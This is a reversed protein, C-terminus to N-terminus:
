ADFGLAEAMLDVLHVVRMKHTMGEREVGLKMQLLCGPNTTVITTAETQKTRAMKIDLIHAAEDFHIVNYIGASGCCQEPHAMERYEVGPISQILALPEETVKQVNTLHCSRQYTVVEEVPKRWNWDHGALLQSIDRVKSAFDAARERWEPDDALLHGYESLMAGCGGANQVIYDAGTEEFAAINQKALQKSLNREGAHSHLAGCCTQERQLVVDYGAESLLIETRRNTRYFMEDMVCGTFFAATGKKQGASAVRNRQRDRRKKPSEVPPAIAEFSQINDPLIKLIGWKHALQRLGSKQYAWLADGALRLMARKPFVTKFLLTRLANVFPSRKRVQEVTTKASEWIEGYQVNTPCVTECNRCGLCLDIPEALQAADIKGEAAMKVLNIRGRPSHTEKEMSEYTPCVPLCYGCQVCDFTLDYALSDRWFETEPQASM